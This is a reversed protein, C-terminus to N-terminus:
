WRAGNVGALAAAAAPRGAAAQEWQIVVQPPVAVGLLRVRDREVQLIVNALRVVDGLPLDPESWLTSVRRLVSDLRDEVERRLHDADTSGMAQYGATVRRAATRRSVGLNKAIADLSEGRRRSEVATLEQEAKLVSTLAM